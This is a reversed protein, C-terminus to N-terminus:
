RWSEKKHLLTYLGMSALYTAFLIELVPFWVVTDRDGLQKTWKSYIMWRIGLGILLVPLWNWWFLFITLFPLLIWHLIISIGFLGPKFWSNDKYHIAASLHRHKQNFWEKYNNAPVSVTFADPDDCVHIRALSAVSQIFLDDDGYPIHMNLKYPDTHLFLSRMYLLNRGSGMYAKGAKTWSMFQIGTMATEFRIFLNLLGPKKRYPSYGLVVSANRKAQVMKKIWQDTAPHCDADTCLIIEHVSSRVGLSLANKKGPSESFLIRAKPFDSVLKELSVKEDPASQDDVILIEFLPYDQEHLSSLNARLKNTDNKHAIVISVGPWDKMPFVLTLGRRRFIVMWYGTIMLLSFFWIWELLLLM